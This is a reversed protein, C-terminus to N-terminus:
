AFNIPKKQMKLALNLNSVEFRRNGINPYSKM